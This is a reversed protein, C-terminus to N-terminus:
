AHTDALADAPAAGGAICAFFVQLARDVEESLSFGADARLWDNILGAILAHLFMAAQEPTWCGSM